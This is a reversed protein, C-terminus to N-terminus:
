SVSGAPRPLLRHSEIRRTAEAACAPAIADTDVTPAPWGCCPSRVKTPSRFPSRPWAPSSRPRVRAGLRADRAVAVEAREGVVVSTRALLALGPAGRDIPHRTGPRYAVHADLSTPEVSDITVAEDGDAVVLFATM